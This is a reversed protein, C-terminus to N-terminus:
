EYIERRDPGTRDCLGTIKGVAVTCEEPTVGNDLATDSVGGLSQLESSNCLTLGDSSIVQGIITEEPTNQSEVRPLNKAYEVVDRFSQCSSYDDDGVKICVQLSSGRGNNIYESRIKEIIDGYTNQYAQLLKVQEETIESPFDIQILKAGDESGILRMRISKRKLQLLERPGNDTNNYIVNLICDQTTVHDGEWDDINPITIAQQSTILVTASRQEEQGKFFEEFDFTKGASKRVHEEYVDM